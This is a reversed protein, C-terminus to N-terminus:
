RRFGFGSTRCVAGRARYRGDPRAVKAGLPARFIGGRTERRGRDELSVDLIRGQRGAAWRDGRVEGGFVADGGDKLSSGERYGVARDVGIADLDHRRRNVVGNERVVRLADRIGPGLIGRMATIFGDSVPVSGRERRGVLAPQAEDRECIDDLGLVLLGAMGGGIQFRQRYFNRRLLCLLRLRLCRRGQARVRRDPSRRLQRIGRRTGPQSEAIEAHLLIHANRVSVTSGASGGRMVLHRNFRQALRKSLVAARIQFGCRLAWRRRRLM